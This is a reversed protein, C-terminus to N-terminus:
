DARLATQPTVRTARRAPLWTAFLAATALLAPAVTFVVPDLPKVNYLMSSLAVGLLAALPLGLAVGAAALVAGEKLMMSLVDRPRAGLAMRIGIERTRQSVIYSKVGYLGVVALLLALLGFVLFVRGGANVAWLQLSRDHFARMTTAQLIPLQPDYRRMERRIAALLDAETGAQAARVHLFMNSRYNRGWPEYLAPGAEHDFLGDRIPAAVGIVEMPQGDNRTQQGPNASYRVMQGIPDDADFLQRALREDIIAVRPATASMEESQTFERGRLMPLNLAHFYDRGIVRFTMNSRAPAGDQTGGVREVAHGEHFDGFPVSAAMGVAAVGPLQGVRTLIERYSSRGRAESYHVLTPDTSVLLQQEYSFGPNASAAKLAGRAFLGGASLLMLSLAIQGVVMLNRGSFRRGLAPSGDAALAKLDAVLDTKSLKLAPGLGSVVTAIVAFATTAAAVMADPRPEFVIGLPLVAALSRALAGTAWSSLILGCAAGASALLLGETLLQRVIRARGGGVALRIAIEKRRAAGRALLMNAINLCAILLVVGSLAMLLAAAGTPGANSSPSTNIGLRPLPSVTLLQQKNEVPYARELQRSLTDLRPAVSAPTLGPKLRGALVLGLNRRDALGAPSSKFIDNIVVDAMGLPLWMEPSIMAMTGTFDKPAVGVVTFDVANIRITKGLLDAHQQKVIAVPLRASPREEESTFARGAALPAGLAEFYNSSVVEVFTQRTSDGNPVGVMALTHAMLSEFADNADRIDVYNAYAFGRYSSEPRTRDHSYLGFLEDAKGALPRLLMANVLTFMASNAGIGLALVVIAVFTFGPTRALTRTGFRVDQLVQRM